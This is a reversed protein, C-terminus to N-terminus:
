KTEEVLGPEDGLGQVAFGGVTALEAGDLFSVLGLTSQHTIYFPGGEPLAGIGLAPAPLEIEEQTAASFDYKLLYDIQDQLLLLETGAADETFALGIGAGELRFPTSDDDALDLLEMGPFGIGNASTFVVATLGDPAVALDLANSQLRYEVLDRTLPDFRYVDQRNRAWLMLFDGADVVSSLPEELPISDPDFTDDPLLVIQPTQAFTILTADIEPLPVMQDPVAGLEVINISPNVLDMVYVDPSGNVALIAHTGDETVAVERPTVVLDPDLTLQFTTDLAPVLALLDIVAIQNQSLVVARTATGSADTTWFVADADFGVPVQTATASQLDIVSVSNLSVVGAQSLDATDLDLTAVAWRTDEAFTLENYATELPIPQALAGDSVTSLEDKIQTDEEPCDELRDVEPDDCSTRRLFAVLLRPDPTPVIQRVVAEGVDVALASGDPAIRVLGGSEPLRAYLGDSLAVTGGADWLVSDFEVTGEDPMNKWPNCGGLALLVLVPSIM